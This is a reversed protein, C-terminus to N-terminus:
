RISSVKASEFKSVLILSYHSSENVYLLQQVGGITPTPSKMGDENDVHREVAKHTQKYGLTIEVKSQTNWKLVDREENIFTVSQSGRQLTDRIFMGGKNDAIM